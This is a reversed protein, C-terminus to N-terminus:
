QAAPLCITFTSGKGAESQVTIAGHHEEIIHRCIPLGLGVGNKKTTFFPEFLRTQHEPRIGAGNDRIQIRVQRGAPHAEAVETSVTLAGNAGLAELANVLLNMFAQQLQCEDGRVTDPAAHYHRTLSVSKANIQHQLLRLSHDLVKHVSVPGLVPPAPAAVRLMQGVMADIRHLERVVVQSLESDREKELLLQVFTKVAVMGNRIEHALGASLAGLNALRDLRRLHQEFAPAGALPGLAVVIEKRAPLPLLSVRWPAADRGKGLFVTEHSQPRGDALAEGILRALPAPLSQVPAGAKLGFWKTVDPTRVAIRGHGDVVFLGCALRAQLRGPADENGGKEGREGSVSQIKATM